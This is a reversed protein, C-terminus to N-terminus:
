NPTVDAAFRRRGVPEPPKKSARRLGSSIRVSKKGTVCRRVGEHGTVAVSLRRIEPRQSRHGGNM